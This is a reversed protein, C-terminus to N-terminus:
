QKPSNSSAADSNAKGSTEWGIKVQFSLMTEDGQPDSASVDVGYAGNADSPIKWHVAKNQQDIEMGPPGSKLTLTIPDSEPDEAELQAIYVGDGDIKQGKLRLKPPANAVFVSNSRMAGDSPIVELEVFDGRKLPQALTNETGDQVTRGNVTWKYRLTELVAENAQVVARLSDGTAPHPPEFSVTGIAPAGSGQAPAYAPIGWFGALFILGALIALGHKSEHPYKFRM